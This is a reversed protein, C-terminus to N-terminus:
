KLIRLQLNIELQRSWFCPLILLSSDPSLVPEVRNKKATKAFEKLKALIFMLREELKEM